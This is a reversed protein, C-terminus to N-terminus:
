RDFENTAFTAYLPPTPLEDDISRIVDTEFARQARIQKIEEIYEDHSLFKTDDTWNYQESTWVMETAEKVVNSDFSPYDIQALWEISIDVIWMITPVGKKEIFNELDELSTYVEPIGWRPPCCMCDTQSWDRPDFQIDDFLKALLRFSEYNEATVCDPVEFITLDSQSETRLLIGHNHYQSFVLFKMRSFVLVSDPM